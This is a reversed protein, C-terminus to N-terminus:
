HKRLLLGEEDECCSFLDKQLSNPVSNFFFILQCQNREEFIEFIPKTFTNLLRQGIGKNLNHYFPDLSYTRGSYYKNKCKNKKGYNTNMKSSCYQLTFHGEWEKTEEM